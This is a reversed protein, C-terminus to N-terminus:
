LDNLFDPWDVEIWLFHHDCCLYHISVQPLSVAADDSSIRSWNTTKFPFSLLLLKKQVYNNNVMFYFKLSHWFNSVGPMYKEKQSKLMDTGLNLMHPNVGSFFDPRQQQQQGGGGGQFQGTQDYM